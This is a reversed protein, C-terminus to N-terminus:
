ERFAEYGESPALTLRMNGHVLEQKGRSHGTVEFFEDKRRRLHESCWHLLPNRRGTPTNKLGDRLAFFSKYADQGVPFSLKVREEVTAIVAGKRHADEFLSLQIALLLELQKQEARADLGKLSLAKMLPVRGGALPMPAVVYEEPGDQRIHRHHVAFWSVPLNTIAVLGRPHPMPKFLTWKLSGDECLLCTELRRGIAKVPSIVASELDGNYLRGDDSLDFMLMDRPFEAVRPCFVGMETVRRDHLKDRHRETYRKQICAKNTAYMALLISTEIRDKESNITSKTQKMVSEGELNDCEQSGM